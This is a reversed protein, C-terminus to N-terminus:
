SLFLLLITFIVGVHFTKGVNSIAFNGGLAFITLRCISTYLRCNSTYLQCNLAPGKHYFCGVFLSFILIKDSVLINSEDRKM